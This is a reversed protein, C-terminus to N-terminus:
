LAHNIGAKLKFNILGLRDIMEGVLNFSMDSHSSGRKM